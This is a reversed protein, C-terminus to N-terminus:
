KTKGGRGGKPASGSKGASTGSSTDTHPNGTADSHGLAKGEPPSAPGPVPGEGHRRVRRGPQQATDNKSKGKANAKGNSSAGQKQQSAASSKAPEAQQEDSEEGASDQSPEADSPQNPLEVGVSEFASRTADPLTVGAFALGALAAPILAVAVAVKAILARRSGFVPGARRRGAEARTAEAASSLRAAEALRRVLDHELAPEPQVVVAARVARVFSETEYDMRVEFAGNDSM